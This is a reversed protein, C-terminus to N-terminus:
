AHAIVESTHTFEPFSLDILAAIFQDALLALAGVFVFTLLVHLAVALRVGCRRRVFICASAYLMAAPTVVFCVFGLLALIVLADTM